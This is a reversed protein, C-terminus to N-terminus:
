TKLTWTKTCVTCNSYTHILKCLLLTEHKRTLSLSFKTHYVVYVLKNIGLWQLIVLRPEACQSLPRSICREMIVLWGTWHDHSGGIDAEASSGPSGALSCVALAPQWSSARCSSLSAYPSMSSSPAARSGSPWAWTLTYQSISMQGGGCDLVASSDLPSKNIQGGGGVSYTVTSHELPSKNLQGCGSRSEERSSLFAWDIQGGGGLSMSVTPCTLALWCALKRSGSLTQSVMWNPAVRPPEFVGGPRTTLRATFRIVEQFDRATLSDVDSWHMLTLRVALMVSWHPAMMGRITVLITKQSSTLPGLHGLWYLSKM